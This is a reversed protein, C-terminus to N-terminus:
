DNENGMLNLKKERGKAKYHGYSKRKIEEKDVQFQHAKEVEHDEVAERHQSWLVAIAMELGNSHDIGYCACIRIFKRKLEASVRGRVERRSDDVVPVGNIKGREPHGDIDQQLEDKTTPKNTM